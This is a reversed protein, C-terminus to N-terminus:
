EELAAAAGIGIGIGVAFIAVGTIVGGSLCGASAWQAQVSGRKSKYTSTYADVYEALKGIFRGAPPNPHYFYTGALVQPLYFVVIGVRCLYFYSARFLVVLVLGYPSTLM